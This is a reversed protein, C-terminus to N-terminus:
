LLLRGVVYGATFFGVVTAAVILAVAVVLGPDWTPRRPRTVDALVDDDSATRPTQAL